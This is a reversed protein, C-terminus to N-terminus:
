DLGISEEKEKKQKKKKKMMMMMKKKKRKKKTKKKQFWELLRCDSVLIEFSIKIWGLGNSFDNSISKLNLYKFTLHQFSIM